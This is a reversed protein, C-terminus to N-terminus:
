EDESPEAYIYYQDPTGFDEDGKALVIAIRSGWQNTYYVPIDAPPLCHFFSRCKEVKDAKVESVSPYYRHLLNLLQECEEKPAMGKEAWTFVRAYLNGDKDYRPTFLLYQESPIFMNYIGTGTKDPTGVKDSWNYCLFDRQRFKMNLYVSYVVEGRRWGEVLIDIGDKDYFYNSWEYKAHLVDGDKSCLKQTGGVNDSRRWTISDYYAFAPNQIISQGNSDTMKFHIFEFPAYFISDGIAGPYKKADIKVGFKCDDPVEEEFRDRIDTAQDDNLKTYYKVGYLVKDSGVSYLRGLVIIYEHGQDDKNYEIIQTDGWRDSGAYSDFSYWGDRGTYIKHSGSTVRNENLHYEYLKSGDRDFFLAESPVKAYYSNTIMRGDDGIENAKVLKWGNGFVNNRLVEDDPSQGDHYYFSGDSLRQFTVLSWSQSGNIVDPKGGNNDDGGCASMFILLVLSSLFFLIRKM